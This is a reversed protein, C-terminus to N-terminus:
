RTRKLLVWSLNASTRPPSDKIDTKLKVISFLFFDVIVVYCFGFSFINRYLFWNGNWKQMELYFNIDRYSARFLLVAVYRHSLNPIEACVQRQSYKHYYVQFSIARFVGFLLPKHHFFCNLSIISRKTLSTLLFDFFLSSRSFAGQKMRPSHFAPAM